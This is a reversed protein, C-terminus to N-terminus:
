PAAGPRRIVGVHRLCDAELLLRPSAFPPWFVDPVGDDDVDLQPFLSRNRDVRAALVAVREAMQEIAGDAPGGPGDPGGPRGSEAEDDEAVTRKLLPDESPALDLDEDQMLGLHELGDRCARFFVGAPDPTPPDTERLGLCHGAACFCHDIFHCCDWRWPGPEDPAPQGDLCPTRVDERLSFRYATRFLWRRVDSDRDFHRAFAAIASIVLHDWGFDSPDDPPTLPPYRVPDHPISREVFPRAVELAARAARPSEHRLVYAERGNGEPALFEELAVANVGDALGHHAGNASLTYWPPSESDVFLAHSYPSGDLKTVARSVARSSAGPELLLIDGPRLDDPTLRVSLARLDIM